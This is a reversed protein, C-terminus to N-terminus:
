DLHSPERKLPLHHIKAMVREMEEDSFPEAGLQELCLAVFARLNPAPLAYHSLVTYESPGANHENRLFVGRVFLGGGYSWKIRNEPHPNTPDEPDIAALSAGSGLIHAELQQPREAAMARFIEMAVDSFLVPFERRLTTTTMM